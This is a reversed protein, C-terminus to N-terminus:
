KELGEQASRQVPANPQLPRLRLWDGIECTMQSGIGYHGCVGCLWSAVGSDAPAKPTVKAARACKDCCHVSVIDGKNHKSFDVMNGGKRDLPGGVLAAQAIKVAKRATCDRAIQELAATLRAVEADALLQTNRWAQENMDAKTKLNAIHAGIMGGVWDPRDPFRARDELLREIAEAVEYDLSRGVADSNQEKELKTMVM